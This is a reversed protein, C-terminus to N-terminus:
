EAQSFVARWAARLSLSQGYRLMGQRFIRASAWIMLGASGTLLVWSLGIQWLPVTSMGWRMLVTVFATTPFLTLAILIPSDPNGMILAIFFFPLMFLLNFIGAIQQGHSAESVAGGIATMFGAVLAYAPLFFLATVLFFDWPIRFSQLQPFFQAGVLLGLTITVVWVLTQTLGVGMLGVAKGAIIQEPSLTTVMIEITRNEKEDAVVQLLYGASGMVTFIFLFGAVFPFIFSVFNNPGIELRGDMSRVTMTPGEILRQRVDDPLGAALNARLFAEFATQVNENVTQEGYYQIVQRSVLYDPPLIYYAQITGQQLSATDSEQDLFAILELQGASGELHFTVQSDLVGAQDVYGVPDQSGSTVAIFISAAMIAIIMLPIGVAGVLFSRKGVMKRYEHKAILWGKGM